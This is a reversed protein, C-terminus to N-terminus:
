ATSSARRRAEREGGDDRRRLDLVLAELLLEMEVRRVGGIRQRGGDPQLHDLDDQAIPQGIARAGGALAQLRTEVAQHLAVLRDAVHAPAPQHHADLQDLIPPALRGIGLEAARMM